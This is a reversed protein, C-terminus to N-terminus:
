SALCLVFIFFAKTMMIMDLYLQFIIFALKVFFYILILIERFYISIPMHFYHYMSYFVGTMESRHRNFRPIHIKTSGMNKPKIRISFQLSQAGTYAVLVCLVNTRSGYRNAMEWRLLRFRVNKQVYAVDLVPIKLMCSRQRGWEKM